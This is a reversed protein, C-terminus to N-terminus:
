ETIYELKLFTDILGTVRSKFRKLTTEGMTTLKNCKFVEEMPKNDEIAKKFKAADKSERILFSSLMISLGLSINAYRRLDQELQDRPYTSDIKLGYHLLHKELEYHYYNIWDDFYKSRTAFDTCNFILYTIDAVPSSEKSIQYDIM